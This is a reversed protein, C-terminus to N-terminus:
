VKKQIYPKIQDYAAKEDTNLYVRRIALKAKKKVADMDDPGSAVHEQLETGTEEDVKSDIYGKLMDDSDPLMDETDIIELGSFEEADPVDDAFAFAPMMTVAMILSLLM